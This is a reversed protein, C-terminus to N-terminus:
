AEYLVQVDKQIQELLYPSLAAETLLDVKRGLVESFRRELAVMKLLSIRKSFHVLLDVDSHEDAEGRAVSGFVGLKQIDYQQCLQVLKDMNLPTSKM